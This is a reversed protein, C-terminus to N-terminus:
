GCSGPRKVRHGPWCTTASAAATAGPSPPAIPWRSSMFRSRTKGGVPLAILPYLLPFPLSFLLSFLLPSM